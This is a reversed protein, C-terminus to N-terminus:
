STVELGLKAALERLLVEAQNRTLLLHAHRGEFATPGMTTTLHEVMVHVIEGEVVHTRVVPVTIPAFGVPQKASM